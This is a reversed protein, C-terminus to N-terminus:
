SLITIQPSVIRSAINVTLVLGTQKYEVIKIVDKIKDMKVELTVNSMLLLTLYDMEVGVYVVLRLTLLMAMVPFEYVLVVFNILNVHQQIVYVLLLAVLIANSM